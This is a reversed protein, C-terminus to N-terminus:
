LDDPTMAFALAYRGSSVTEQAGPNKLAAAGLGTELTLEVADSEYGSILVVWDAVADAGRIRQEATPATTRPTDTILLHAGTLGPQVALRELEDTLSNLLQREHGPRPS